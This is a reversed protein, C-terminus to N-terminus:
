PEYCSSSQSFKSQLLSISYLALTKFFQGAFSSHVHLSPGLLNSPAMAEAAAANSNSSGFPRGRKPTPATAGGAAGASKGQERKQM